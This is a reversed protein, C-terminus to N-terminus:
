RLGLVQALFRELPESLGALGTTVGLARLFGVLLGGGDVPRELGVSADRDRTEVFGRALGVLRALDIERDQLVRRGARDPRQQFRLDRCVDGRRTGLRM